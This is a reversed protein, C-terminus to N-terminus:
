MYGNDCNKANLGLFIHVVVVGGGGGDGEIGSRKRRSVSWRVRLKMIGVCFM